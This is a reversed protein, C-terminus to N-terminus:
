ESTQNRREAVEVTLGASVAATVDSYTPQKEQTVVGRM